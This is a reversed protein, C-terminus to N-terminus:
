SRGTSQGPGSPKRPTPFPTVSSTNTKKINKDEFAKILDKVSPVESSRAETSSKVKEVEKTKVKEPEANRDKVIPELIQLNKAVSQLKNLAEKVRESANKLAEEAISPSEVFSKDINDTKKNVEALSGIAKAVGSLENSLLPSLADQNPKPQGTVTEALGKIAGVMEKFNEKSGDSAGVLPKMENDSSPLQEGSLKAQDPIVTSIKAEQPSLSVKSMIAEQPIPVIQEEVKALKVESMETTQIKPTINEVTGIINTLADTVEKRPVDNSGNPFLPTGKEGESSGSLIGQKPEPMNINSIQVQQAQGLNINEKIIQKPSVSPENIKAEHSKPEGIKIGGVISKEATQIKPKVIAEENAILDKEEQLIEEVVEKEPTTYETMSVEDRGKSPASPMKDWKIRSLGVTGLKVDVLEGNEYELIDYAGEIFKGNEDIRKSAITCTMKGKSEFYIKGNPDKVEKLEDGPNDGKYTTVINEGEKESKEPPILKRNKIDVIIHGIAKEVDEAKERAEVEAQNFLHRIDRLAQDKKKEEEDEFDSAAMQVEM